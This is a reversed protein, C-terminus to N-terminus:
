IKKLGFRLLNVIYHSLQILVVMLCVFDCAIFRCVVLILLVVFLTAYFYLM